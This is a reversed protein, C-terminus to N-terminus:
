KDAADGAVQVATGDALRLERKEFAVSVYGLGVLGWRPSLVASTLLGAKADGAFLEGPAPVTDGAIKLRRLHKHVAGRSRVREVIEQGLYCGKNFSVSGMQGTEQVLHTELIDVGYRPHGNELRVIELDEATALPLDSTPGSGYGRWGQGGTASIPLAGPWAEALPGEAANIAMQGSVDELTVDDAIIYKDLHALLKERMEPETDLLLADPQCIIWADALIRGQANLFFAHCYQGPTLGQVHNTCMAHILRARDEGTVRILGRGTLDVRAAATTLSEYGNM